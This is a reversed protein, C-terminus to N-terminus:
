SAGNRFAISSRSLPVVCFSSKARAEVSAPRIGVAWALRCYARLCELNPAHMTERGRQDSSRGRGDSEESRRGNEQRGAGAIPALERDILHGGLAQLRRPHGFAVQPVDALEGEATLVCFRIEAVIALAQNKLRRAVTAAAILLEDHVDVSGVYM